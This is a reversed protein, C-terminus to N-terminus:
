CEHRVAAKDGISPDHRNVSRLAEVVKRLETDLHSSDLQKISPYILFILLM